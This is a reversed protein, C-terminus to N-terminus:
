LANILVWLACCIGFINWLAVVVGFKDISSLKYHKKM